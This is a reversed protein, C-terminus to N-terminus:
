TWSADGRNGCDVPRPPLGWRICAGRVWISLGNAAFRLGAGGRTFAKRTGARTRRTLQESCIRRPRKIPMAPTGGHQHLEDDGISLRDGLPNSSAPQHDPRPVTTGASALTETSTSLPNDTLTNTVHGLDVPSATVCIAGLPHMPRRRQLLHPLDDDRRRPHPHQPRPVREAIDSIGRLQHRERPQGRVHYDVTRRARDGKAGPHRIAIEGPRQPM